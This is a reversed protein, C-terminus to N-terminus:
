LPNGWPPLWLWDLSVAGTVREHALQRLGYKLRHSSSRCCPQRRLLSPTVQSNSRVETAAGALALCGIRPHQHSRALPASSWVLSIVAASNVLAAAARAPTLGLPPPCGSMSEVNKQHITGSALMRPQCRDRLSRSRRHQCGHRLSPPSAENGFGSGAPSQYGCM